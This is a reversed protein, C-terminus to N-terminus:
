SGLLSQGRTDGVVEDAERDAQLVDIIYYTVQLLRQRLYVALQRRSAADLNVGAPSTAAREALHAVVFTPSPNTPAPRLGAGVGASM